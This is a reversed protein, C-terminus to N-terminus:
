LDALTDLYRPRHSDFYVIERGGDHWIARLHTPRLLGERIGYAELAVSWPLTRRSGDADVKVRSHTLFESALGERDFGFVGHVSRGGVRLVAEARYRDIAHWIIAPDLALAPLILAEALVTLLAGSDLDPGSEDFATFAKAFVGRMRGAGDLYGEVAQLPMGGMRADVFAWRAPGGAATVQTYRVPHHRKGVLLEVFEHDILVASIRPQGVAGCLRLHRRVPAPLRALDDDTIAPGSPRDLLRQADRLFGQRLPSWAIAEYGLLGAAAGGALLALNRATRRQM